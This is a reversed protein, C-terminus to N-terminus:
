RVRFGAQVATLAYSLVPYVLATTLAPLILSPTWWDVGLVVTTVTRDVFVVVVAVALMALTRQALSYMHLRDHFRQALYVAFALCIASLGLPKALLADLFLGAVWASFVGIRERAALTWFFFVALTWHPRVWQLWDPSGMPARTAALGMAAIVTVLIVWGGRLPNV